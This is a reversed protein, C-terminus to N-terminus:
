TTVDQMSKSICRQIYGANSTNVVTNVVGRGGQCDFFYEIVSLGQLYSSDIFGLAQFSDIIVVFNFSSLYLDLPFGVVLYGM